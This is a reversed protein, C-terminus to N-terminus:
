YLIEEWGLVARKLWIECFKSGFEAIRPVAFFSYVTQWPRFERPLQRWQCWTKTVYLIGDVLQRKAHKSMNGYKGHSFYGEILSWQQDTLSRPYSM